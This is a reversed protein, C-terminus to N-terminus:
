IKKYVFERYRVFDNRTYFSNAIENDSWYDLEIKNIGNTKAIHTIEEMLKSGYGKNRQGASISLNNVYLSKYANKFANEPYNRIEIWAYGLPQDEDELVLFIHEEKNIVGKFFASIDDFNYEKFYDPYLNVHLDHIDKNLRAIIEFDNTRSIKM